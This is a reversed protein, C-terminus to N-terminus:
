EGTGVNNLQMFYVIPIMFLIIQFNRYGHTNDTLYTIYSYSTLMLYCLAMKNGFRKIYTSLIHYLFWWHWLLSGIFGLEIYREFVGSHLGRISAMNKLVASGLGEIYRSVFSFGKGPYGVSFSCITRFHNYIISRGNDAIGKQTLLAIFSDDLIMYVFAFCIAIACITEIRIIPTIIGKLPRNIILLLVAAVVIGALGIRKFGFTFCLTCLFLRRYDSKAKKEKFFLLYIIFLGMIFLIEHVEFFGKYPNVGIYQGFFTERIYLSLGSGRSILTGTFVSLLYTFVSVNIYYDLVRSGMLLLMEYMAGIALFYYLITSVMRSIYSVGNGNILFIIVTYITAVVYPIINLKFGRDLVDGCSERPQSMCYLIILVYSLIPGYYNLKGILGGGAFHSFLPINSYSLFILIYLYFSKRDIRM